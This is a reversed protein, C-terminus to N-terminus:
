KAGGVRWGRRRGAHLAIAAAPVLCALLVAALMALVAAHTARDTKPPTAAPLSM